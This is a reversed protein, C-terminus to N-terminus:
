GNRTKARVWVPTSCSRISRSRCTTRPGLKICEVISEMADVGSIVIFPIAKLRVDAARHRLLGYGDMEPMEIDTLVVDVSADRLQEIAELGSGARDCSARPRYAVDLAHNPEAPRRRRGARNCCLQGDDGGLRAHKIQRRTRSTAGPAVALM